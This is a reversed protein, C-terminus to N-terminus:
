ESNLSIGPNKADVDTKGIEIKCLKSMSYRTFFVSTGTPDSWFTKSGTRRGEISFESQLLPKDFIDVLKAKILEPSDNAFMILQIVKGTRDAVVFLYKITIGQINILASDFFYYNYENEFWVSFLKQDPHEM